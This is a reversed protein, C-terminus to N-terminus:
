PKVLQFIGFAIFALGALLSITIQELFSKRKQEILYENTKPCIYIIQTDGVNAGEQEVPDEDTITRKKGDVLLEYYRKKTRLFTESDEIKVLKAECRVRCKIIQFKNASLQFLSILLMIAGIFFFSFIQVDVNLLPLTIFLTTMIIGIIVGIVLIKKDM